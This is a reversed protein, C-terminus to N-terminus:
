EVGSGPNRGKRPASAAIEKLSSAFDQLTAGLDKMVAERDNKWQDQFAASRQAHREKRDSIFKDRKEPWGEGPTPAEFPQNPAHAFKPFGTHYHIWGARQCRDRRQMIEDRDSRSVKGPLRNCTLPVQVVNGADTIWLEWYAHPVSVEVDHDDEEIVAAVRQGALGMNDSSFMGGKDMGPTRAWEMPVTGRIKNGM